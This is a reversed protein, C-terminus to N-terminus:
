QRGLASVSGSPPDPRSRDPVGLRTLYRVTVTGAVALAVAIAYGVWARWTPTMGQWFWEWVSELLEPDDAYRIESSLLGLLAGPAYAFWSILIALPWVALRQVPRAGIVVLAAALVGVWVWGVAEVASTVTGASGDSGDLIADLPRRVVGWYWSTGLGALVSLTLGFWVAGRVAVVGLGWGALSGLVCAGMLVTLVGGDPTEASDDALQLAVYSQLLMVAVSAALGVLTAVMAQRSQVGGLIRALGAALGGILGFDFLMRTGYEYLPLAMAGDTELLYTVDSGNLGTLIWPLYGVIWWAAAAIAAIAVTPVALGRQMREVSIVM